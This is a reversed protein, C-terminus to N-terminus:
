SSNVHSSFILFLIISIIIILLLKFYNIKKHCISSTSFNEIIIKRKNIFRDILILNPYKKPINYKNQYVYNSILVGLISQEPTHWRFEPYLEGYQEGDIYKDILCYKNWEKLIEISTASKKCTIFNAVLLPFNRTFEKNIALDDIVNKKCHQGIKLHENEVTIVFDFNVINYIEDINKQFNTFNKLQPYKICNCDRYVIIDGNNVKELELLIVLPKWAFFGTMNANPNASVLGSNSYEKVHNNYGLNKLIRPTYLSYKINNEKLNEIMINKSELLDLGKDYNGGESYFSVFNVM